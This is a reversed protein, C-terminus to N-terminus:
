FSSITSHFDTSAGGGNININLSLSVDTPEFYFERINYITKSLAPVFWVTARLACTFGGHHFSTTIPSLSPMAPFNHIDICHQLITSLNSSVSPKGM